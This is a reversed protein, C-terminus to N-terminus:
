VTLLNRHPNSIPTYVTTFTMTKIYFERRTPYANRAKSLLDPENYIEGDLLPRYQVMTCGHYLKIRGERLKYPSLVEMTRVLYSVFVSVSFMSAVHRTQLVHTFLLEHSHIIKEENTTQKQEKPLSTFFILM